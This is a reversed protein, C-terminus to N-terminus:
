IQIEVFHFQINSFKKKKKKFYFYYKNVWADKTTEYEIAEKSLHESWKQSWSKISKGYNDELKAREAILEALDNALKQGNDCRKLAIKYKGIDWFNEKEASHEETSINREYYNDSADYHEELPASPNTSNAAGNNLKSKSSHKRSLKSSKKRGTQGSACNLSEFFSAFPM